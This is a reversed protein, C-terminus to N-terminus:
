KSQWPKVKKDEPNKVTRPYGLTARLLIRKRPSFENTIKAPERAESFPHGEDSKAVLKVKCNRFKIKAGNGVISITIGKADYLARLVEKPVRSHFYLEASNLYYM